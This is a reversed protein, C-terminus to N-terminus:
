WELSEGSLILWKLLNYYFTHDYFFKYYLTEHLKCILGLILKGDSVVVAALFSDDWRTRDCIQCLLPLQGFPVMGM